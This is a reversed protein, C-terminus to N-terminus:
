EWLLIFFIVYPFNILILSTDELINIVMLKKIKAPYFNRLYQNGRAFYLYGSM